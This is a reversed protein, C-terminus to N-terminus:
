AGPPRLRPKRRDRPPRADATTTRVEDARKDRELSTASLFMAPLRAAMWDIFARVQPPVLDREPYVLAVRGDLRLTRPLVPVLDGRELHGAAAVTPVFAIGQGRAALRCLLDPSNSFLVGDLPIKTRGTAWHTQPLEGRAFGM